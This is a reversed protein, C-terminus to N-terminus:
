NGKIYHMPLENPLLYSFTVVKLYYIYLNGTTSSMFIIKRHSFPQGNKSFYNGM